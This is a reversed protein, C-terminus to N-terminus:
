IHTLTKVVEFYKITCESLINRNYKVKKNYNQVLFEFHEM